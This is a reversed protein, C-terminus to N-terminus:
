NRRTKFSNLNQSSSLWTDSRQREYFTPFRPQAGQQIISKAWGRRGSFGPPSLDYIFSSILPKEEELDLRGGQIFPIVSLPVVPLIVSWVFRASHFYRGSSRFTDHDPRAELIDRAGRRREGDKFKLYM